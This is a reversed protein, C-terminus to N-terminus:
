YLRYEAERIADVSQAIAQATHELASRQTIRQWQEPAIEGYQRLTALRKEVEGKSPPDVIDDCEMVVLSLIKIADYFDNATRPQPLMRLDNTQALRLVGDNDELLTVLGGVIRSFHSGLAFLNIGLLEDSRLVSRICTYVADMSCSELDSFDELAVRRYVDSIARAEIAPMVQMKANTLGMFGVPGRGQGLMNEATTSKPAVGMAHMCAMTFNGTRWSGTSRRSTPRGTPWVRAHPSGLRSLILKLLSSSSGRSIDAEAMANMFHLLVTLQRTGDLAALAGSGLGCGVCTSLLQQGATYPGLFFALEYTRKIHEKTEKSADDPMWSPQRSHVKQLYLSFVLVSQASVAAGYSPTGRCSDCHQEFRHRLCCLGNALPSHIAPPVRVKGLHGQNSNRSSYM